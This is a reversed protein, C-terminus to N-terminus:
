PIVQGNELILDYSYGAGFDKNVSVMAQMTVIQGENVFSSSTVVLDYDDKSGDQLHIWHRGMINPNVKVCKGSIQVTKGAYQQPNKVLDAIKISGEKQVAVAVLPTNNPLDTPSLLSNEPTGRSGGHNEAVLKSVLFIKDFTRNYEQSEFDTKLLGGQYYYTGGKVVEQKRTAIWFDENGERVNLYVYRNAPLIENVVVKHLEEGFASNPDPNASPSHPNTNQANSGGSSFIGTAQGKEGPKNSSEIVKPSDGCAFLSIGLFIILSIKINSSMSNRKKMSGESLESM